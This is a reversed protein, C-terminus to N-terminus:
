YRITGCQVRHENTSEEEKEEERTDERERDTERKTKAGAQKRQGFMCIDKSGKSTWSNSGLNSLTEMCKHM